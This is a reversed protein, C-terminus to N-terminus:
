LLRKFTELLSLNGAAIVGTSKLTFERGDGDSVAAGAAQAIVFGPILDHLKATKQVWADLKGSAIWSFAVGGCGLAQIRAAMSSLRPMSSCCFEKTGKTDSAAFHVAVIANIPAELNSPQLKRVQSRRLDLVVAGGTPISGVFFCETEPSYIVAVGDLIRGHGDFRIHALQVCYLPQEKAFLITGDLSDVCWREHTTSSSDLLDTLDEPEEESLIKTRSEKLVANILNQSEVDAQIRLSEGPASIQRLSSPEREFLYEGSKLAAKLGLTVNEVTSVDPTLSGYLDSVTQLCDDALSPDDLCLVFQALYFPNCAAKGTELRSLTAADMPVLRGNEWRSFQSAAKALSEERRERLKRFLSGWFRNLTQVAPHFRITEDGGDDWVVQNKSRMNVLIPVLHPFYQKVDSFAIAM